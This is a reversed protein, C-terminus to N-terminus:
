ESDIGDAVAELNAELASRFTRPSDTRGNAIERPMALSEDDEFLDELYDCHTPSSFLMKVKATLQSRCVNILRSVVERSGVARAPPQAFFRLGDVIVVVLIQQSLSAVVAEFMSCISDISGGRTSEYCQQLIAGDIDKRCRDVLQLLLSMAMEEPNGNADSQEDRHQGCFFGLPIIKVASDQQECNTRHHELLSQFLQATFFSVASDPRSEARGNLFLLASEDMTLWAQLRPNIQLAVLRGSGSSARRSEKARNALKACDKVVLDPEYLFHDLIKEPEIHSIRKTHKPGRAALIEKEQRADIVMKLLPKLSEMIDIRAEREQSIAQTITQLQTHVSYTSSYSLQLTELEIDRSLRNLRAEFSQSAIKLEAQCDRLRDMFGTPNM